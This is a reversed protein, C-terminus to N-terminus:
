RVCKWGLLRMAFLRGCWSNGSPTHSHCVQLKGQGHGGIVPHLREDGALDLGFPDGQPVFLHGQLFDPMTLQLLVLEVDGFHREGEEKPAPGQAPAVPHQGDKMVAVERVCADDHPAVCADPGVVGLVEAALANAHGVVLHRGRQPSTSDELM